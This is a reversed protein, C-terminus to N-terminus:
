QVKRSSCSAPDTARSSRSSTSTGTSARCTTAARSSSCKRSRRRLTSTAVCARICRCSAICRLRARRRHVSSWHMRCVIARNTPQGSRRIVDTTARTRHLSVIYKLKLVTCVNLWNDIGSETTVRWVPDRETPFMDFYINALAAPSDTRLRLNTNESVFKVVNEFTYLALRDNGYNSLHTM